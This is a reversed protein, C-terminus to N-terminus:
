TFESIHVLAHGKCTKRADEMSYDGWPETSSVGVADDNPHGSWLLNPFISGVTAGHPGAPYPENAQPCSASGGTGGEAGAGATGGTAVGGTGGAAGQGAAGGLAGAGAAGTGAVSGGAAAAGAAGGATGGSGSADDGCAALTAGLIAAVPALRM